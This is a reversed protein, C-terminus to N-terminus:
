QEEAPRGAVPEGLLEFSGAPPLREDVPLHERLGPPEEHVDRLRARMEACSPRSKTFVTGAVTRSVLKM